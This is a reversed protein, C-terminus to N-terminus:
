IILPMFIANVAKKEITKKFLFNYRCWQDETTTMNTPKINTPIATRYPLEEALILVSGSPITKSIRPVTNVDPINM